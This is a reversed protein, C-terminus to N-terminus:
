YCQQTTLHRQSQQDQQQAYRALVPFDTVNYYPEPVPLKQMNKGPLLRLQALATFHYGYLSHPLTLRWGSQPDDDPKATPWRNDLIQYNRKLLLFKDPVSCQNNWWIHKLKNFQIETQQETQAGLQNLTQTLLNDMAIQYMNKTGAQGNLILSAAIRTGLLNSYLDEPSFASITEPFGSISQYGYWQALEHWAALQFALSASLWVALTYREAPSEPPTFANFVLQRQALEDSLQLTLNQGFQPWLQSFIYLTMDASDRVHATDIFGGHLTHIIGNNENGIHMIDLITSFGNGNYRHHGTKGPQVINHIRYLPVPINFLKVSLNYGFSCCPRLRDPLPLPALVPWPRSATTAPLPPIEPAIAPSATNCTVALIVLMIRICPKSITM